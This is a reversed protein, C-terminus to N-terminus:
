QNCGNENKTNKSILFKDKCNNKHYRNIKSEELKIIESIRFNYENDNIIGEDHLIKVEKVLYATNTANSMDQIISKALELLIPVAIVTSFTRIYEDEKNKLILIIYISATAIAIIFAILSSFKMRKIM